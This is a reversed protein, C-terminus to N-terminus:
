PVVRSRWGARSVLAVFSERENYHGPRKYISEPGNPIDRHVLETEPTPGVPIVYSPLGTYTQLGMCLLFDDHVDVLRRAWGPELSILGDRYVPVLSALDGRLMSVRCTLDVKVMEGGRPVNFRNYRFEQSRRRLRGWPSSDTETSEGGDEGEYTTLTTFRRGIQGITSFSDGVTAASWLLWEVAQRGPLFDDDARVVYKHRHGLAVAPPIWCPCGLNETVRWVDDAQRLEDSPYFHRVGEESPSNDAVVIRVPVTQSRWARIVEPMNQPRSYNTLLVLVESPM